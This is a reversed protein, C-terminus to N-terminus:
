APVRCGHLLHAREQRDRTAQEVPSGDDADSGARVAARRDGDIGELATPAIAAPATISQRPAYATPPIGGPPGVLMGIPLRVALTRPPGIVGGVPRAPRGSQRLAALQARGQTGPRAGRVAAPGTALLELRHADIRSVARAIAAAPHGLAPDGPRRGRADAALAAHEEERRSGPLPETAARALLPRALLASLLCPAQM